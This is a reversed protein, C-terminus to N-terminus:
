FGCKKVSGECRRHCKISARRMRWCWSESLYSVFSCDSSLQQADVGSCYRHFSCTGGSEYIPPVWRWTKSMILALLKGTGTHGTTLNVLFSGPSFPIQARGARASIPVLKWRQRLAPSASRGPSGQTSIWKIWVPTTVCVSTVWVLHAHKWVRPM